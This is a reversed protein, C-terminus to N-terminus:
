RQSKTRLPRKRRSPPDGICLWDWVCWRFRNRRSQDDRVWHEITLEYHFEVVPEDTRNSIPRDGRHGLPLTANDSGREFTLSSKTREM